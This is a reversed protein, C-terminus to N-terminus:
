HYPSWRSRCSRNCEKGVRREESRYTSALYSNAVAAFLAGVGLGFRPDVDTPKIFCALMAVLVAVFLAQFMKMYLGFGDRQIPIGFRFQSFTSKTGLPLRPDGRTTKYSHAKEIGKPTGLVYGSVSVRSSVRTSEVDPVFLLRERM